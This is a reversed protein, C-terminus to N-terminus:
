DDGGKLGNIIPCSSSSNGPCQKVWQELQAEMKQLEAIKDRIEFLKEQARSKVDSSERNVNRALSLLEKCEDLTFGVKRSRMILMLEDIHEKRYTRYGNEARSPQSILGKDEYFRISKASLGTRKSVESINV